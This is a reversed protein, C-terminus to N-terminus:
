DDTLAAAIKENREKELNMISKELTSKGLERKFDEFDLLRQAMEAEMNAQQKIADKSQKEMEKFAKESFDEDVFFNDVMDQDFDFEIPIVMKPIMRFGRGTSKGKEM